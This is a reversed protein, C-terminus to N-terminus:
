YVEHFMLKEAVDKTTYDMRSPVLHVMATLLDIIITISNYRGDRDKSEPLPGVFDVGIVDWPRSPISLPNLLGYLKQMPPKSKQYTVCSNCFVQIDPGMTEWWVHERLYTLTKKPGLHVLLSHAQDIIVKHLRREGEQINPICLVKWDCMKLCIYRDKSAEFNKFKRPSELIRRNFPDKHYQGKIKLLLGEEHPYTVPICPMSHASNSSHGEPNRDDPSNIGTHNQTGTGM